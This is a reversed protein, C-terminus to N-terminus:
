DCKFQEEADRLLQKLQIKVDDVTTFTKTLLEEFRKMVLANKKAIKVQVKRHCANCYSKGNNVDYKFEPYTEQPKIHHAHLSKQNNKFDKLCLQCTFKDREFVALRWVKHKYDKAERSYREELPMNAYRAKAADSQHKRQEDTVTKRHHLSYKKTIEKAREEGYLEVLTKGKRWSSGSPM